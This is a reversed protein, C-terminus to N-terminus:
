VTKKDSKSAVLRKKAFLLTGHDDTATQMDKAVTTANAKEKTKEGIDFISQIYAIVEKSNQRDITKKKLAWGCPLIYSPGASMSEQQEM